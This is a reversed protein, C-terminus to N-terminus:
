ASQLTNALVVERICVSQPQDHVFRVAAVVSAPDLAGGISDKWKEYGAIVEASNTHGLLETEVAGPAVVSVRINDAAVEERLNESMAHVAFKTGVYAVHNPFTKRGAVSSVNIITGTRRASMSDIAIQCGNLVGLVNVDLMAKWEAPDQDQLTSLQMLGANNIMTGIPGFAEEGAQVAAKFAVLDTVDVKLCLANPLELAELRDLRRALLIVPHGSESFSTALAAGIGSSAGTIVVPARAAESM